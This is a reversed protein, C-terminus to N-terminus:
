IRDQQELKKELYVEHDKFLATKRATDDLWPLGVPRDWPKRKQFDAQNVPRPPRQADLMLQRKYYQDFSNDNYMPDLDNNEDSLKKNRKENMASFALWKFQADPDKIKKNFAVQDNEHKMFQMQESERGDQFHSATNKFSHMFAYDAQVAEKLRAMLERRQLYRALVTDFAMLENRTMTRELDQRLSFCEQVVARFKDNLYQEPPKRVDMTDYYAPVQTFKWDPHDRDALSVHHRLDTRLGNKNNQMFRATAVDLQMLDRMNTPQIFPENPQGLGQKLAAQHLHTMKNMGSAVMTKSESDAFIQGLEDVLRNAQKYQGRKNLYYEALLKDFVSEHAAEYNGAATDSQARQEVHDFGIANQNNFHQANYSHEIDYFQMVNFDSTINEYMLDSGKNAKGLGLEDVVQERLLKLLTSANESQLHKQFQKRSTAERMRLQMYEEVWNAIREQDMQPEMLLNLIKHEYFNKTTEMQPPIECAERMERYARKNEFDRLSDEEERGIGFM